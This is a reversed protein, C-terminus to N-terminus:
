EYDECDYFSKIGGLLFRNNKEKYILFLFNEEKTEKKDFTDHKCKISVVELIFNNYTM